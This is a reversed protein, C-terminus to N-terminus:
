AASTFYRALGGLRDIVAGDGRLVDSLRGRGSLADITPVANGTLVTIQDGSGHSSIAVEHSKAPGATVFGGARHIEIAGIQVTLPDHGCFFSALVLSYALSLEAEGLDPEVDHGLPALVDREHVTSDWGAHVASMWWPVRGIPSLSAHGFQDTDASALERIMTESSSLYRERTEQDPVVRDARVRQDPTTRPDFGIAPSEDGSWLRRMTDDVWVLHRLVDAVTWGECRSPSALDGATLTAMTAVFRRRQGALVDMTQRPDFLFRVHDAQPADDQRTVNPM